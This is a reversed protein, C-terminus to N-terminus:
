KSAKKTKKKAKKSKKATRRRRRTRFMSRPLRVISCRPRKRMDSRMLDVLSRREKGVDRLLDGSDWVRVQGGDNETVVQRKHVPHGNVYESAVHKHIAYM